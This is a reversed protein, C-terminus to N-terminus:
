GSACAVNRLFQTATPKWSQDPVFARVVVIGQGVPAEVLIARAYEEPLQKRTEIMQAASLVVVDLLDTDTARDTFAYVNQGGRNYISVSWYPVNGPAYVHVPGDALDFRCASAYFLPDLSRVIPVEGAVADIRVPKYFDAAEALRAWADRGSLHPLLLLVTIHVIAAGVLAILAAYALRVM